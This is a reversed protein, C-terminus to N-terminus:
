SNCVSKVSMIIQLDTDADGGEFALKSIVLDGRDFVQTDGAALTFIASSSGNIEVKVDQDPSTTGKNQIQVFVAYSGYDTLIDIYTDDFTDAAEVTYATDGGFTLAFTNEEEVDSYISGDDTVVEIFADTLSVQPYAFRKWYNCDTFTTGDFLQRYRRTPGTVFITRQKSTTFPTGLLSHNGASMASATSPDLDMLGQSANQLKVRFVSM